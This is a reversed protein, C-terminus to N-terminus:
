TTRGDMLGNMGNKRVHYRLFKKVSMRFLNLVGTSIHCMDLIMIVEKQRREYNM